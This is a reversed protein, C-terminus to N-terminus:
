QSDKPLKITEIFYSEEERKVVTDGSYLVLRIIPSSYCFSLVYNNCPKTKIELYCYMEDEKLDVQM